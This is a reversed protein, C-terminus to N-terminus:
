RAGRAPLRRVSSRDKLGALLGAATKGLVPHVVGPAIEALPVLVFRRRALRPHPVELRPTKVVRRGALLIDVDLIRPGKAAGPVRGVAAEIARTLGLLAAPELGTEVAVVRNYFWPQDLRDVPETRYVSSRRIIRVGAATLLEAARRLNRPRDGLNSGLSLYYVV